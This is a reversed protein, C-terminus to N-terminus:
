SHPYIPFGPRCILLSPMDVVLSGGEGGRLRRRDREKSGVAGCRARAGAARTDACGAKLIHQALIFYGARNLHTRGIVHEPPVVADIDVFHFTGPHGACYDRCARNFKARSARGKADEVGLTGAGLVFVKARPSCRSGIAELAEAIRKLRQGALNLRTFNREFWRPDEARLLEATAERLYLWVRDSTEYPAEHVSGWFSLLVLEAAALAEDFRVADEYSWYAIARLVASDRVRRRDSLVFGPDDYRVRLRDDERNVFELRDAACYSALQLLDCGGLLVLKGGIPRAGVDEQDEAQAANIWDVKAHPEVGYAVPGKVELLPRELQEYVYQEIGMNMVRCSFVFHVLKKFRATKRMLFFGILGYDGYRDSARVCGAHLGFTRGLLRRLNEVEEPTDVRRKTFNLRNARNILEVIREFDAEVAYDIAVRIRSERLFEENSLAAASRAKAKRELLRYHELRSLEADPKGRCHPHELLGPLVDGPLGTMLGPNCHAAEALNAASDDIFLVNQPRLGMLAITEAIAEGKPHFGISPFVFYDWVGLESLKAGAAAPDNKSCISNLIGRRSLEIVAGANEAIAAIGGESLRGSWFTDDLDWIVLKVSNEIV